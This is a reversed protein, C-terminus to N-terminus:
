REDGRVERRMEFGQLVGVLQPIRRQLRVTVKFGVIERRIVEM